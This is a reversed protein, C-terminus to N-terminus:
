LITKIAFIKLFSKLPLQKRSAFYKAAELRSFGVRRSIIEETKDHKNYFGFIM